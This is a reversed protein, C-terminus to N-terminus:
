ETPPRLAVFEELHQSFAEHLPRSDPDSAVERWYHRVLMQVSTGCQRAVAAIDDGNRLRYSIHGRRLAYPTADAVQGVDSAQVEARQCAPRFRRRPWQKMQTESWHGAPAAGPFVFDDDGMATGKMRLASRWEHLAQSLTPNLPFARESGAVKGATIAGASVVDEFEISSSTIHGWRLGFLDQNRCGTLFQVSAITADRERLLNSGAPAYKLESVICAAARPTLAWSRRQLPTSETNARGRRATRSSRRRSQATLRSGNFALYDNEVAWSLCASLVRVARTVTPGGASTSVLASRLEAIHTPREFEDIPKEGLLPRIHKRYTHIYSRYTNVALGDPRDPHSSDLWMAAVHDLTHPAPQSKGRVETDLFERLATRGQDKAVRYRAIWNESGGAGRRRRFGGKTRQRGREDVYGVSYRREGSATTTPRRHWASM